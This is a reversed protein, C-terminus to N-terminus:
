PPPPPPPVYEVPAFPTLEIAPAGTLDHHLLGRRDRVRVGWELVMHGTAVFTLDFRIMAGLRDLPMAVGEPMVTVAPDDENRTLIAAFPNIGGRTILELDIAAERLQDERLVGSVVAGAGIDIPINGALPPPERDEEPDIVFALPAYAYLENAGTLNVRAQGPQDTLNKIAWELELDLDGLAVYPVPAGLRAALAARAEADAPSELEIPVTITGTGSNAAMPGNGVEISLPAPLYQPDSGCAALALAGVAWCAPALTVAVLPPRHRRM